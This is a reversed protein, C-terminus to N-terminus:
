MRVTYLALYQPVDPFSLLCCLSKGCRKCVKVKGDLCFRSEDSFMINRCIKLSWYVHQLCWRLHGQHQMWSLRREARYCQLNATRSQRPLWDYAMDDQLDQSCSQPLRGISGTSHQCSSPITKKHHRKKPIGVNCGHVACTKIVWNKEIAM